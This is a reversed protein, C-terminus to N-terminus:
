KLLLSGSLRTAIEEGPFNVMDKESLVGQSISRLPFQSRKKLVIGQVFVSLRKRKKFGNEIKINLKRMKGAKGKLINL